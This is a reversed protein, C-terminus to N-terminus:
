ENDGEKLEIAKVFEILKKNKKEQAELWDAFLIKEKKLIEAQKELEEIRTALDAVKLVTENESLLLEKMRYEHNSIVQDQEHGSQILGTVSNCVGDIRRREVELRDNEEESRMIKDGELQVINFVVYSNHFNYKDM